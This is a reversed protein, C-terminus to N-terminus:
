ASDRMYAIAVSDFNDPCGHAQVAQVATFENGWKAVPRLTDHLGKYRTVRHSTCQVAVLSEVAFDPAALQTIPAVKSRCHDLTPYTASARPM